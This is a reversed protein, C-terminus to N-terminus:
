LATPERSDRVFSFKHLDKNKSVGNLKGDDDYDDGEDGDEEDEDGHM